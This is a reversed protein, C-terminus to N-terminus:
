VQKWKSTLTNAFQENLLNVQNCKNHVNTESMLRRGSSPPRSPGDRVQGLEYPALGGELDGGARMDRIMIYIYIFYVYM